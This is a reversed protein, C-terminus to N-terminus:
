DVPADDDDGIDVYFPGAPARRTFEAQDVARGDITYGGESLDVVFVGAGDEPTEAELARLRREIDKYSM